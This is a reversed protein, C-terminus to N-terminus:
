AIKRRLKGYALSGLMTLGGMWVAPPVPVSDLSGSVSASAINAFGITNVGDFLFDPSGDPREGSDAFITYHAITSDPVSPLYDFFFAHTDVAAPGDNDIVSYSTPPTIQGHAALPIIPAATIITPENFFVQM